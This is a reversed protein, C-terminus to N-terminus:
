HYANYSYDSSTSHDLVHSHSYLSKVNKTESVERAVTDKVEKDETYNVTDYVTKSVERPV